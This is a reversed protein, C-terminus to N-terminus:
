IIDLYVLVMIVLGVAFALNGLRGLIGGLLISVILGILALGAGMRFTNNGMLERLSNGRTEWEKFFASQKIKETTRALLSQKLAHQPANVPQATVSGAANNPMALIAFAQQPAFLAAFAVLLCLVLQRMTLFNQNKLFFHFISINLFQSIITNHYQSIEFKTIYRILTFLIQIDYYGFIEIGCYGL